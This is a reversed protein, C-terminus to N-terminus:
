LNDFAGSKKTSSEPVVNFKAKNKKDLFTGQTKIKNILARNNDIPRKSDDYFIGNDDKYFGEKGDYHATKVEKRQYNNDKGGAIYKIEDETMNDPFPVFQLPKGDVFGFPSSAKFEKQPIDTVPATKLKEMPDSVDYGSKALLEANARHAAISIGQKRLSREFALTAAEKKAQNAMETNVKMSTRVATTPLQSATYAAAKDEPTKIEHGFIKQSVDNLQALQQDTNIDNDIKRQFAKDNHYKETSYAYMQLKTPENLQPNTTVTELYKDTPHPTVIPTGESYPFQKKIETNFSKDDFPRNATVDALDLMKFNPNTVPLNHRDHAQIFYDSNLLDQNKPNYYLQGAQHDVLGASQSTRIVGSLDRFQKQMGLQAAGADLKPNSLADRNQMYFDQMKGKMENIVPVDNDRTGKDNVTDSLRQYYQNLAQGRAEKRMREQAAIRMYPTSDLVVNGGSYLNSPNHIM